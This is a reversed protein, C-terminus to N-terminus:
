ERGWIGRQRCAVAAVAELFAVNCMMLGTSTSADFDRGLDAKRAEAEMLFAPDYAFACGATFVDGGAVYYAVGPDKELSDAFRRLASAFEGVDVPKASM